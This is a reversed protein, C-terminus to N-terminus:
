PLSSEPHPHPAPTASKRQGRALVSDSLGSREKRKQCRGGCVEKNGKMATAGAGELLEGCLVCRRAGALVAEALELRAWELGGAIVWFGTQRNELQGIFGSRLALAIEAQFKGISLGEEPITIYHHYLVRFSILFSRINYDNPDEYDHAHLLSPYKKAVARAAKDFILSPHIVITGSEKEEEIIRRVQKWFTFERIARIWDLLADGEVPNLLAQRKVVELISDELSDKDYHKKKFFRSLGALEVHFGPRKAWKSLQRELTARHTDPKNLASFSTPIKFFADSSHWTRVLRPLYRDVSRAGTRPHVTKDRLGAFNEVKEIEYHREKASLAELEELTFLTDWMGKPHVGQSMDWRPVDAMEYAWHVPYRYPKWRVALQILSFTPKHTPEKGSPM